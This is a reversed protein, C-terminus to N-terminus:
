HKPEKSPESIFGIPYVFGSRNLKPFVCIVAQYSPTGKPHIRVLKGQRITIDGAALGCSVSIRDLIKQDSSLPVSAALLFM